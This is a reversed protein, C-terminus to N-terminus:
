NGHNNKVIKRFLNYRSCLPNDTAPAADNVLFYPKATCKKYLNM